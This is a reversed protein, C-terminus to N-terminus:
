RLMTMVRTKRFSPTQLCYFYVGSANSRGADDRGNWVAEHPGAPLMEGALLNKVRHGSVDYIVLTVTTAQALSFAITTRPNFPNPTNQLLLDIATPMDGIGSVDTPASATSENGAFDVASILYHDNFSGSTDTWETQATVQVLNDPEPSCEAAPCRYIRFYSFDTDESPEWSLSNTTGFAVTFGTPVGPALNDVSYGSDPVSDYFATPIGTHARVFFTSRCMGDATSDCLTEALTNYVTDGSAPLNLVFDWYVGAKDQMVNGKSAVAKATDIRRYISYTLIPEPSNVVDLNSPQWSIRVRRGQDNGVDAISSIIPNHVNGLNSLPDYPDSGAAAEDADSDGDGDSDLDLYNPIGDGDGDATGENSDSLTDDDSDLDRYDPQGDADSDINGEIQDLIGDNDSDTDLANLIGDTDTDVSLGGNTEIFDDIGDADSDALNPSTGLSIEIYDYLGDGDTDTAPTDPDLYNPVGDGDDDGLGELPDGDSFGDNDSDTDLYNPVADGDTDVQGETADAIGDGDDDPDRYNSIYDGDPDSVGEVIDLIGDDDSDTDKADIVGDGDTDILHGDNTEVPDSISDFDTDPSTPDTTLTLVELGDLLSDGDSDPDNPNTEGPDHVGNMNTDETGDNLGDYDSDAILPNTTSGGDGDPVFGSATGAYTVNLAGSSGNSTGGPVGTTMGSELGDSLGDSDCDPVRPDTEDVGQSGNHDSDENGDAIGDDDTDADVPDTEGPDWAGDRDSDELGDSLGDGDTDMDLPDSHSSPNNDPTFVAQETGEYPVGTGDSIGNAIPTTIGMEQGDGLGDNDSDFVLPNLGFTSEMHDSLGDDDSDADVPSTNLSFIEAYDDAGDNDTDADFPDTGYTDTEQIDTLGDSDSDQALASAPHLCFSCLLFCASLVLISRM